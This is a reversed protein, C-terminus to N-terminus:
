GQILSLENTLLLVVRTPDLKIAHSDNTPHPAKLIQRVVKMSDPAATSLKLPFVGSDPYFFSKLEFTFRPLVTDM